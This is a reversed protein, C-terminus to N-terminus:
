FRGGAGGGGFSGGGFGGGFNGGFGGGNTRVPAVIIRPIQYLEEKKYHCNRCEYVNVGRGESLSSAQSLIRNSVLSYSVAHCVPCQMFGTNVNQYSFIRTEHCKPCLWVDYDVSKLMEETQQGVSLYADEHSESQLEMKTSCNPCVVASYRMSKHRAKAYLYLFIVPFVFLVSCVRLVGLTSQFQMYKINNEGALNNIKNATYWLLCIFMLISIIIYVIFGNVIRVRPSASHLLMEEKAEDTSLRDCINSVAILFAEDVRGQRMLPFIEDELLSNLYADPLIGELGKGTEFRMARIDVVYLFLLGNDRGAKGVGWKTALEYAFSTEDDGEISPLIVVAVEASTMQELAALKHNITNIANPSLVNNVDSVYCNRCTLKPNAVHDIDYSFSGRTQACIIVNCLLCLTVFLVRKGVLYKVVKDILQM